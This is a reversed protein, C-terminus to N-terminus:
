GLTAAEARASGRALSRIALALLLMLVGLVTVLGSLGFAIVSTYLSARLFSTTEAVARLPDERDMEAYTQGGTIDLAHKEIADAQAYASFPGDVEDGALFAADDVVTIGAAALQDHVLYYSGAGAVTMVLGLLAVVAAVLRAVVYKRPKRPKSAPTEATAAEATTAETDRPATLSDTM